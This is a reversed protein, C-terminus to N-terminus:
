KPLVVEGPHEGRELCVHACADGLQPLLRTTDLRIGLEGSSILMADEAFLVRRNHGGDDRRELTLLTGKHRTDWRCGVLSGELLTGAM